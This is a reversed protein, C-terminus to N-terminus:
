EEQEREEVLTSLKAKKPCERVKHSEECFYCKLTFKRKEEKTNKGKDFKEHKSPDEKGHSDGRSKGKGGKDKLSEPKELKKFEILSEAISIATALDQAGHRQIEMKVWNQLGDKFAFFAEKDPYDSIELLVESFEKM